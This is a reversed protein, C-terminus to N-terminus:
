ALLRGVRRRAAGASRRAGRPSRGRRRGRESDLERVAHQGVRAAAPLTLAALTVAIPPIRERMVTGEDTVPTPVM